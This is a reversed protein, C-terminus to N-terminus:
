KGHVASRKRHLIVHEHEMSHALFLHHHNLAAWLRWFDTNIKGNQEHNEPAQAECETLFGATVRESAPLSLTYSSM